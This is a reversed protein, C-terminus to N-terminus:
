TRCPWSRKPLGPARGRYLEDSPKDSFNGVNIGWQATEYNRNPDVSPRSATNPFNKRWMRDVLVSREHGDPNVLPVIWIECADVIRKVKADSKYNNVLYEAFLYPVEVSIWERAHHCGVILVRMDENKGIKIVHIDRGQESKGITKEAPDAIGAPSNRLKELDDKLSLFTMTVAVGSKKMSTKQQGATDNRHYNAM